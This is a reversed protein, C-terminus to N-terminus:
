RKTILTQAWNVIVTLPIPAETGNASRNPNMVLLFREAKGDMAFQSSRRENTQRM